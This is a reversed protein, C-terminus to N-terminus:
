PCASYVDCEVACVGDAIRDAHHLPLNRTSSDQVIKEGWGRLFAQLRTGAEAVISTRAVGHCCHHTPRIPQQHMAGGAVLKVRLAVGRVQQVIVTQHQRVKSVIRPTLAHRAVFRRWVAVLSLPTVVRVSLCSQQHARVPVKVGCRPPKRGAVRHPELPSAFMLRQM